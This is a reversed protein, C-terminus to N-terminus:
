EETKKDQEDKVNGSDLEASNTTHIKQNIYYPSVKPITIIDISNNNEQSFYSSLAGYAINDIADLTKDGYHQIIFLFAFGGIKLNSKLSSLVNNLREDTKNNSVHQQNEPLTLCKEYDNIFSNLEIDDYHSIKYLCQYFDDPNNDAQYKNILFKLLDYHDSLKNFGNVWHFAYHLENNRLLPGIISDKELESLYKSMLEEKSSKHQRIASNIYDISSQSNVLEYVRKNAVLLVNIFTEIDKLVDFSEVNSM